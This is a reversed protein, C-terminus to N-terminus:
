RSVYLKGQLLFAFLHFPPYFTERPTFRGRTFVCEGFCFDYDITGTMARWKWEMWGNPRGDFWFLCWKMVEKLLTRTLSFYSCTMLLSLKVFLSDSPLSLSFLAVPGRVVHTRHRWKRVACETGAKGKGGGPHLESRRRCIAGGSATCGRETRRRM